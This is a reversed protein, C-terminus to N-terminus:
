EYRADETGSSDERAAAVRSRAERGAEVGTTAAVLLVRIAALVYFGVLVAVVFALLVADVTTGGFWPIPASVGAADLLFSGAGLLLTAVVGLVVVGALRAITGGVAVATRLTGLLQLGSRVTGPVSRADGGPAVAEVASGISRRVLLGIGVLLCSLAGVTALARWPSGASLTPLVDLWAIGALALCYATGVIAYRKRPAAGLVHAVAAAIAGLGIALAPWTLPVIAVVNAVAIGVLAAVTWHGRM